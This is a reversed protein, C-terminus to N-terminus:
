LRARSFQYNKSRSSLYTQERGPAHARKDYCPIGTGWSRYTSNQARKKPIQNMVVKKKANPKKPEKPADGLWHTIPFM